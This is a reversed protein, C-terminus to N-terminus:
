GFRRQENLVMREDIHVGKRSATFSVNRPYWGAKALPLIHSRLNREFDEVFRQLEVAAVRTFVDAKNFAIKGLPVTVRCYGKGGREVVVIKPSAALVTTRSQGSLVFPLPQGVAVFTADDHMSEDFGRMARWSAVTGQHEVKWNEYGRSTAYGVVRKAYDPDFRKPIFVKAFTGGAQYAALRILSNAGAQTMGLKKLEAHYKDIMLRVDIISINKGRRTTYLTSAM